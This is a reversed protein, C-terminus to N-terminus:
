LKIFKHTFITKKGDLLQFLYIGSCLESIDLIPTDQSYVHVNKGWIDKIIFTYGSMFPHIRIHNTAPNPYIAFDLKDTGIVSSTTILYETTFACGNADTVTIFYKGISIGSIHNTTDSTNWKFTYPATGGQPTVTISGNNASSSTPSQIIVNLLLQGPQGITVSNIMQCNGSESVTITYQGAPVASLTFGTDLTSWQAQLPTNGGTADASISGTPDGFCLPSRVSTNIQVIPTEIAGLDIKGNQVRQKGLLDTLGVSNLAGANIAPSCSLLRYDSNATNVYLPDQGFINLGNMEISDINVFPTDLWNVSHIGRNRLAISDPFDFLCNELRFTDPFILYILSDPSNNQLNRTFICNKVSYKSENSYGFNLCGSTGININRDFTCNEFSNDYKLYSTTRNAFVSGYFRGFLSMNESFVSNQVKLNNSTSLIAGVYGKNNRFVCRDIVCTGFVSVGGCVMRTLDSRPGNDEFSCDTILIQGSSITVTGVALRPSFSGVSNRFQCGNIVVKTNLQSASISIAGSGFISGDNGDFVSHSIQVDSEGEETELHIGAAAITSRNRFFECSDVTLNIRGKSTYGAIAGQGARCSDFRCATISLSTFPQLSDAYMFIAGGWCAYNECGLLENDIFPVSYGTRFQIGNILTTSDTGTVMLCGVYAYASVLSQDYDRTFVTLLTDMNRQQISTEIGSFNGILKVGNPLKLRPLVESNALAYHGHAIWIHDGYQANLIATHAQTYANTWSEGTNTGTANQNVYLTDSAHLTSIVCVFLTIILYHRM